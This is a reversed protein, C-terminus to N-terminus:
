SRDRVGGGTHAGALVAAVQRVVDGPRETLDRWTFRLVIYGEAVLRNQRRRDREFAERASHAAYGDVELVLRQAPFLVDVVAIM